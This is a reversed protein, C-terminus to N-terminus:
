KEIRERQRKEAEEVSKVRRGMGLYAHPICLYVHLYFM